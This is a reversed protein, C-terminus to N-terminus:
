SVIKQWFDSIKQYTNAQAYNTLFYEKAILSVREVEQHNSLLYDLKDVTQQLNNINVLWGTQNDNIITMAGLTDSALTPTNRLGAEIIVKGFSENTSLFLLLYAAQYYDVLLHQEKEGLLFVTDQLHYQSILFLLENKQAGNGIMLLVFDHRRSKLEKIVKLMFPLNKAAVLRGVSLLIKKGYKTQIAEVKEADVPLNFLEDNIPTHIVAIKNAPIGSELLKDKIRQSVVRIGAAKRVIKKQIISYLRNKFSEKLWYDNQWFDGHFHVELPKHWRRSLWLGIIGTAHPDQTDVLDYKNKVFLGLGIKYARRLSGWGRGASYIYYNDALKRVIGPEGALVIVDLRKLGDAYKQHRNIVDGSESLFQPDLSIMLISIDSLEKPM